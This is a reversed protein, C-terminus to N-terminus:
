ILDAVSDAEILKGTKKAQVYDKIARQAQKIEWEQRTQYLRDFDKLSLIVVDPQNNILVIVPGSKKAKDFVKRYSRQIENTTATNPMLTM